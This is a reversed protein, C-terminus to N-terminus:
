VRVHGVGAPGGGRLRELPVLMGETPATVMDVSYSDFRGGIGLLSIEPNPRRLGIDWFKKIIPAMHSLTYESHLTWLHVVADNLVQNTMSRSLSHREGGEKKESHCLGLWFFM